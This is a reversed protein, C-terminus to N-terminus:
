HQALILAALRAAPESAAPQSNPEEGPYARARLASAFPGPDLAHVRVGIHEWEQAMMAALGEIAQKAVGYPGWYARRMRLPDDVTWVVQPNAAARLAPLLAQTLLLPGNLNVQLSRMWEEADIGALPTLGEFRAALHVLVDLRGYAEMLAEAVQGYESPTAGELNLPMISPEAAGASELRDYLQELVRVRRGCLVMRVPTSALQLCLATGLTGTAGTIMVVPRPDDTRETM